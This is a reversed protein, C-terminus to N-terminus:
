PNTLWFLPGTNIYSAKNQIFVRWEVHADCFLVNQGAPKPGKLHSSTHPVAYGGKVSMFSGSGGDQIIGDFAMETTGARDVSTFKRNYKQKVNRPPTFNITGTFNTSRDNLYSYGLVRVGAFTWLGDANQEPNAPCYFLKRLSNQKMNDSSDAINAPNVTLLQDGFFDPEDWLWNIGGIGNGFTTSAPVSDSFQAAYIAFSSGQAKLNAACTARKAMDRAKSLSPILISILLALIAVVVLLEILTFGARSKSKM